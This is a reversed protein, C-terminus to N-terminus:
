GGKARGLRSYWPASKPKAGKETQRPRSMVTGILNFPALLETMNELDQISTTTSSCV